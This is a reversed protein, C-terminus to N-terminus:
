LHPYYCSGWKLSNNQPHFSSYHLHMFYDQCATVAWCHSSNGSAPNPRSARLSHGRSHSPTIYSALFIALLLRECASRTLLFETKGVQQLSFSGTLCRRFGWSERRVFLSLLVGAEYPARLIFNLFQCLARPVASLVPYVSLVYLYDHNVNNRLSFKEM